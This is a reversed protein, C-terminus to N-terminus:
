AWLLSVVVVVIVIFMMTVVNVVIDCSENTQGNKLGDLLTHINLHLGQCVTTTEHQEFKNNKLHMAVVCLSMGRKFSNNHVEAHHKGLQPNKM